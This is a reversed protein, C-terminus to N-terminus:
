LFRLDEYRTPYVGTKKSELFKPIFAENQERAENLTTDTIRYVAARYPESVEAAIAYVAPRFKFYANFVEQYFSFQNAYLFDKFDYEFRDLNRCTKLDIIAREDPNFWDIRIQCPTDFYDSRVVAEPFGVDLLARAIKHARVADRITAIHNWDTESLGAKGEAGNEALWAQYKQTDTGFPKGTRENIPGGVVYHQNFVQDGELVLQHVARGLFFSAPEPKDKAVNRKYWYNIPSQIYDTLQHSSLYESALAHYEAAEEFIFNARTIPM